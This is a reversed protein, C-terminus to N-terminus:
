ERLRVASWRGASGAQAGLGWPGKTARSGLPVVLARKAGVTVELRGGRVDVRFPTKKGTDLGSARADGLQEWRDEKSHYRFVTVGYDAVLAVSFYGDEARALLVNMQRRPGPWIEVEGSIAYDSGKSSSTRWAIANTDPFAIQIWDKGAPELSRIGQDWEPTM